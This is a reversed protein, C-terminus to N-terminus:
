DNLICVVFKDLPCVLSISAEQPTIYKKGHFGSLGYYMGKFSIHHGMMLMLYRLTMKVNDLMKGHLKVLEKPSLDEMGLGTDTDYLKSWYEDGTGYLESNISRPLDFSYVTLKKAKYQSDVTLITFAPNNNDLPAIANATYTSEYAIYNYNNQMRQEYSIKTFLDTIITAYPMDGFEVQSLDQQPTSVLKARVHQRGIHLHGTITMEVVKDYKLMLEEYEEYFKSHWLTKDKEAKSIENPVHMFLIAKKHQESLSKLQSKIWKMQEKATENDNDKVNEKFFYMSNVALIRLNTDLDYYYYGGNYFTKINDPTELNRNGPHGRIFINYTYQYYENKDKLDPVQNHYYGDLNGMTHLIPMGIFKNGIEKTVNALARRVKEKEEDSCSKGLKCPVKHAVLDGLVLIVDPKPLVSKAKAIASRILSNPADCLYRGWPAKDPTYFASSKEPKCDAEHSINDVYDENYHFDSLILIEYNKSAVLSIFSLALLLSKLM